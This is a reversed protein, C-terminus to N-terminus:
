HGASAASFIWRYGYYWAVGVHVVMTVLMLLASFRHLGRWSRLLYDFAVSRPVNAALAATETIRASLLHFEARYYPEYPALVELVLRRRYLAARRWSPLLWLVKPLTARGIVEPMPAAHLRAYLERGLGPRISEFVSCNEAIREHNPHPVFLHICRGIVGTLLTMGLAAMTVVALPSRMQLASHSLAFLGALAGTTVHIDLWLRMSGLRWRPFRRRLLYSLNALVLLTALIGYAHGTSHGPSLLRYDPHDVRNHIDTTYFSAGRTWLAWAAVATLLGLVLWGIKRLSSTSDTISGETQGVSFSPGLADLRRAAGSDPIVFCQHGHPSNETEIPAQAGLFVFAGRSPNPHQRGNFLRGRGRSAWAFWLDLVFGDEFGALRM